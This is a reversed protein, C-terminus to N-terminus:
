ERQCIDVPARPNSIFGPRRSHLSHSLLREFQKKIYRNLICFLALHFQRARDLIFIVNNVYQLVSVARIKLGGAALLCYYNQHSRCIM